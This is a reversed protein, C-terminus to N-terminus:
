CPRAGGGAWPPECSLSLRHGGIPAQTATGRPWRLSTSVLASDVASKPNPLSPGPTASRRRDPLVPGTRPTM